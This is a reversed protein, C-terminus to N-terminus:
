FCTTQIQGQVTLTKEATSWCGSGVFRLIQALVGQEGIQTWHMFLILAPIGQSLILILRFIGAGARFVLGFLDIIYTVVM